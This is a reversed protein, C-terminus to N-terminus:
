SAAYCRTNTVCYGWVYTVWLTHKYPTSESSSANTIYITTLIYCIPQKPYVTFTDHQLKRTSLTPPLLVELNLNLLLNYILLYLIRVADNVSYRTLVHQRVDSLESWLNYKHCWLWTMNRCRHDSLIFMNM